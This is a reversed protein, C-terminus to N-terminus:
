SPTSDDAKTCASVASTLSEVTINFHSDHWTVKGQFYLLAQPSKHTVGTREAIANSVERFAILDLYAHNKEGSQTVFSQYQTLAQTSVPCRTSHKLLVLPAKETDGVFADLDEISEIQRM